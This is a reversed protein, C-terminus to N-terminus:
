WWKEWPEDDISEVALRAADALEDATEPHAAFGSAFAEDIVKRRDARVLGELAHRVAHSRTEFAGAGILGDVDRLLADPLKVAIQQTM